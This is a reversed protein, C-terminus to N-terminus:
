GGGIARREPDAPNAAIARRNARLEAFYEEANDPDAAPLPDPTAVMRAQRAAKVRARVHAPMLFDTSERYHAVVADRAGEVDVDALAEQWARVDQEGITRRDYRAAFTLLASTETLNM